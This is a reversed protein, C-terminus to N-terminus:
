KKLVHLTHYEPVTLQDNGLYVVREQELGLDEFFMKWGGPTCFNFPM